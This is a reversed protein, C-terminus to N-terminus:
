ATFHSLLEDFNKVNEEPGSAGLRDSLLCGILYKWLINYLTEPDGKKLQGQDMAKQIYPVLFNKTIEMYPPRADKTDLSIEGNLFISLYLRMPHPRGDKQYELTDYASKRLVDLPTPQKALDDFCQQMADTFSLLLDQKSSYYHYILGKSINAEAAIDAISTERYGKEYFLKLAAAQIESRRQKELEEKREKTISM